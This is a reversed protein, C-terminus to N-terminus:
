YQWIPSTERLSAPVYLLVCWLRYRRKPLKRAGAESLWKRLHAQGYQKILWSVEDRNGYALLREIVLDGDREPDLREFDFEQFFPRSTEPISQMSYNYLLLNIKWRRIYLPDLCRIELIEFTESNLSDL